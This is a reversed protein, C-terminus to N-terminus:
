NGLIAAEAAAMAVVATAEVAVISCGLPESLSSRTGEGEGEGERLRSFRATPSEHWGHHRIFGKAFSVPEKGGVAHGCRM